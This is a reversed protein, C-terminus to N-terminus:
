RYPHIMNNISGGEFSGRDSVSFATSRYFFNTVVNRILLFSSSFWDFWYASRTASYHSFFCPCFLKGIRVSVRIGTPALNKECTWVPGPAWGSWQVIPVVNKRPYLPRPTTSVVCRRRAGLDRILLAIGRNGM